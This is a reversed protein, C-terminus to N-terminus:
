SEEKAFAAIRELYWGPFGLSKAPTHIRDVYAREAPRPQMDHCIYTMAPVLRGDLTHVLVAEPLYVEGLKGHAHERYLRELERHTAATLIGYVTHRDSAILNARPAIALDFGPLRAVEIRDPVLDAERLVDLNIYSGYFFVKVKTETAPTETTPTEAMRPCHLGPEM